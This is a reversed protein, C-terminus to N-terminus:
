EASDALFCNWSKPLSWGSFKCRFSQDPWLQDLDDSFCTGDWISSRYLEGVHVWGAGVERERECVCVCVFVCVCVCVCM